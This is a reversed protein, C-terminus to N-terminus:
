FIFHSIYPNHVEFASFKAFVIFVGYPKIMIQVFGDKSAPDAVMIKIDKGVSILSFPALTGSTVFFFQCLFYRNRQQRRKVFLADPTMFIIDVPASFATGYHAAKAM